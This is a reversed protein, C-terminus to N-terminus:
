FYKTEADVSTIQELRDLYVLEDYEDYWIAEIICGDQNIEKVEWWQADEDVLKMGVYIEEGDATRM